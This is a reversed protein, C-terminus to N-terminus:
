EIAVNVDVDDEIGNYSVTIKASGTAVATVIGAEDVTATEPADSTFTCESNELEIPSYM